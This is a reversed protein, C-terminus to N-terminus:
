NHPHLRFWTTSSVSKCLAINRANCTGEQWLKEYDKDFLTITVIEVGGRDCDMLLKSTSILEQVSFLSIGTLM